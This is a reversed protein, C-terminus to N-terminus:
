PARWWTVIEQWENGELELYKRWREGRLVDGSRWDRDNVSLRPRWATDERESRRTQLNKSNETGRFWHGSLVKILCLCSRCVECANMFRGLLERYVTKAVLVARETILVHGRLIVFRETILATCARVSCRIKLCIQVALFRVVYFSPLFTSM